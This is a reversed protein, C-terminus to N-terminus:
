KDFCSVTYAGFIASAVIFVYRLQILINLKETM